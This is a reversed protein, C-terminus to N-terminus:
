LQVDSVGIVEAMKSSDKNVQNLLTAFELNLLVHFEDIYLWTVRGKKRNKIIRNQISGMMVLMTILSLEVDLDRIGYVSLHVSM